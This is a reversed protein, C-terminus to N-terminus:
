LKRLSWAALPLALAALYFLSNLSFGLGGLFIVFTFLLVRSGHLVWERFVLFTLAGKVNEKAIQAYLLADFPVYFFIRGSKLLLSVVFASGAALSFPLFLWLLATLLAGGLLLKRKSWRDTLRGSLLLLVLSLLLAASAVGGVTQYSGFIGFVFLPWAIDLVDVEFHSLAWAPWWNQAVKGRLYHWLEPWSPAHHIPHHMMVTLPLFSLLLLAVAVGYLVKFSFLTVILGGLLPGSSQALRSLITMFSVEQGLTEKKGDEAFILHYPLWYFGVATGGFLAALPILELKNGGLILLVVTTTLFLTGLAAARRLGWRSVCSAAPGVTAVVALSHLLYYAFVPGLQGTIKFLYLPVFIGVLAMAFNHVFANLYLATLGAVRHHPLFLLHAFGRLM